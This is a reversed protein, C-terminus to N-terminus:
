GEQGQAYGPGHELAMDGGYSQTGLNQNSMLKEKTANGPNKHPDTSKLFFLFKFFFFQLFMVLM